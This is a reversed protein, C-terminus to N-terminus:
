HTVGHPNSDGKACSSSNADAPDSALPGPPSHGASHGTLPARRSADWHELVWILAEREDEWMSLCDHRDRRAQPLLVDELLKLRIRLTKINKNESM